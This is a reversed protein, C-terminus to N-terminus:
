KGFVARCQAGRRQWQTSHGQVSAQSRVQRVQRRLALSRNLERKLRLLGVLRLIASM